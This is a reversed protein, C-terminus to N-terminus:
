EAQLDLGLRRKLSFLRVARLGNGCCQKKWVGVRTAMVGFFIVNNHKLGFFVAIYVKQDFPRKKSCHSRWSRKAASPNRVLFDLACCGAFSCTTWPTFKLMDTSPTVSLGVAALFSFIWACIRVAMSSSLREGPAAAFSAPRTEKRVCAANPDTALAAVLAM